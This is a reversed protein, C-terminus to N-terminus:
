LKTLPKQFRIYGGESDSAPVPDGHCLLRGQKKWHCLSSWSALHQMFNCADQTVKGLNLPWCWTATHTSVVVAVCSQTSQIHLHWLHLVAFVKNWSVNVTFVFPLTLPAPTHTHPPPTVVRRSGCQSVSIVPPGVTLLIESSVIGSQSFCCPSFLWCSTCLDALLCPLFCGYPGTAAIRRRSVLSM